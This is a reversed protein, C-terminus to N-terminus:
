KAQKLLYQVAEEVLKDKGDVLASPRAIDPTVGQGEYDKQTLPSLWRAVTLQFSSGDKLAVIEVISGKGYTAEGMVVARGRDQLSAAITEGASYTQHSTLVVLPMEEAPGGSQTAFSLLKGEKTRAYFAVGAKEFLDLIQQTADMLGGGNYRLDLILGKPSAQLLQELKAKMAQPTQSDEIDFRLYAIQEITDATVLQLTQRPIQFNLTQNSRLVEIQAVPIQSNRMLNMMENTSVNPKVTWGDLKTIVDGVQLGGKAAPMDPIVETIVFQGNRMEGQIGIIAVGGGDLLKLYNQTQVPDRFTAYKDGLSALMSSIANYTLDSGSPLTGYEKAQINELAQGFVAMEPHQYTTLWSCALWGIAFWIVMLAAVQFRNNRLLNRTKRVLLHSKMLRITFIDFPQKLGYL